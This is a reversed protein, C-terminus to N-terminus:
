KDTELLQNLEDLTEPFCGEDLMLQGIAQSQSHDFKKPEGSGFPLKLLKKYITRINDDNVVLVGDVYLGFTGDWSHIEATSM